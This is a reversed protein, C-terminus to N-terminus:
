QSVSGLLVTVGGTAFNQLDNIAEQSEPTGMSEQMAEKTLYYIEAMRYHAPEGGGPASDFKTLELKSVGPMRKAIPLHKEEYYQEFKETDTPHNYLVTVKYM